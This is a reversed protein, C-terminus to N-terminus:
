CELIKVMFKSTPNLKITLINSHLIGWTHEHDFYQHALDELYSWPWFIPFSFVGPISMTLINTFKANWHKSSSRVQPIQCELIKVMLKSTPNLKGINQGHAYRFSKTWLYKSWSWVQPTQCELLKVMLMGPPNPMGINQGHDYRPPKANWYNSWSRQKNKQIKKRKVM